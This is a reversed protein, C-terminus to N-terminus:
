KRATSYETLHIGICFFITCFRVRDSIVFSQRDTEGERWNGGEGAREGEGEGEGERVGQRETHRDIQRDRESKGHLQVM